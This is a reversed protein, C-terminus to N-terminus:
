VVWHTTFTGQSKEVLVLRVSLRGGDEPPLLFLAWPEEGAAYGRIAYPERKRHENSAGKAEAMLEAWVASTETLKEELETRKHKM